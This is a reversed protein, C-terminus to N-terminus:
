TQKTRSKAALVASRSVGYRQAIRISPVGRDLLRQIGAAQQDSILQGPRVPTSGRRLESRIREEVDM